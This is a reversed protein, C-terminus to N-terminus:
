VLAIELHHIRTGTAKLIDIERITFNEGEHTIKDGKNFSVQPYSTICDFFLTAKDEVAEGLNNFANRKIKELRVYQLTVPTGDTVVGWSDMSGKPTCIVTDNLLKRPIAKM